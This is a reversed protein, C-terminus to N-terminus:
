PVRVMILMITLEANHQSATSVARTQSIIEAAGKRTSWM